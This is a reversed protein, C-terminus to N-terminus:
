TLAIMRFRQAEETPSYLCQTGAVRRWTQHKKQLAESLVSFLTNIPPSYEAIVHVVVQSHSWVLLSCRHFTGRSFRQLSHNVGRSGDHALVGDAPPNQGGVRRAKRGLMSFPLERFVFAVYTGSVASM